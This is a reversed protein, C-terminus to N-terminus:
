VFNKVFGYHCVAISTRTEDSLAQLHLKWARTRNGNSGGSNVCDRGSATHPIGSSGRHRGTKKWCGTSRRKRIWNPNRAHKKREPPISSAVAQRVMRRHVGHEKALGQITEGAAYRRRIEEFLEM